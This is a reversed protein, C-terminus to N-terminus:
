AATSLVDARAGHRVAAFFLPISMSIRVATALPMDGHRERSFVEAYGTSLNTGIVHLDAGGKAALEAFTAEPRGLRRAIQEGIWTAFFDGRHWGFDKALRRVDRIVGLSDDLFRKFDLSGLLEHQEAISYGLAFLLANIAEASTGGVRKVPALMGRGELVQMAGISAIGKVGGGEFM